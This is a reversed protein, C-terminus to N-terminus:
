QGALSSLKTPMLKVSVGEIQGPCFCRKKDKACWRIKIWLFSQVFFLFLHKQGPCISPTLTFSIGVLSDLKAPWYSYVLLFIFIILNQSAQFIHRLKFVNNFQITNKNQKQTQMTKYYMTKHGDVAPSYYELATLYEVNCFPQIAFCHLSLVTSYDL